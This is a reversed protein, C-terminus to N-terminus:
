EVTWHEALHEAYAEKFAKDEESSIHRDYSLFYQKIEGNRIECTIYCNDPTEKRRVFVIYSRNRNNFEICDKAYNAVCHHMNKGEDKIDQPSTPIVVCYNGYEFEMEDKHLNIAKAFMQQDIKEKQAKYAKFVRAYESLFNEKLTVKENIYDCYRCYDFFDVGMLNSTYYNDILYFDNYVFNIFFSKIERESYNSTAFKNIICALSRFRDENIDVDVIKNIKEKAIYSKFESYSYEVNEEKCKLAYKIYKKTFAKDKVLSNYINFTGYCSDDVTIGLNDFSDALKLIETYEKLLSIRYVTDSTIHFIVKNLESRIGDNSGVDIIGNFIERTITKIEKGRTGLLVGTNIDFTYTSGSANTVKILNKEKVATVAM